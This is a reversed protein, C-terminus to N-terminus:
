TSGVKLWRVSANMDCTTSAFIRCFRIVSLNGQPSAGKERKWKTHMVPADCQASFHVQCVRVTKKFLKGDTRRPLADITQTAKLSLPVTRTDGNKTVPLWAVRKSIDIFRWELDLIESRRMGTEVALQIITQLDPAFRAAHFVHDFELRSVRRERAKSNPPKRIGSIPNTDLM